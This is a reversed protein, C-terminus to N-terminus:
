LLKEKRNIFLCLGKLHIFLASSIMGVSYCGHIEGNFLYGSKLRQDVPIVILIAAVEWPPLRFIRVM